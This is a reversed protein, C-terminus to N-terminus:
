FLIFLPYKGTANYNTLIIASISCKVATNCITPTATCQIGQWSEGDSSCPNINAGSQFNWKPGATSANRWTWFNGNAGLYLSHLADVESQVTGADTNYSGFAVFVLLMGLFQQTARPCNFVMTGWFPPKIM